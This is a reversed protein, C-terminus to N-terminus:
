HNDRLHKKKLYSRVFVVLIVIITIAFIIKGYANLYVVISRWNDGLGKGSFILILNWLLSSIVALLVTTFFPLGSIGTFLSIVGRTGALFRNVIVVFYGYKVFWAEVTHIKDLNLFRIKNKELISRGMWVGIKYMTIFGITSGLTSVILLIWVNVRGTATLYGAAVLVVDSPFPPFINEFFAIFGAFAYVWLPDLV